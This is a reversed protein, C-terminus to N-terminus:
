IRGTPTRTTKSLDDRRSKAAKGWGVHGIWARLKEPAIGEVKYDHFAHAVGRQDLFARAKKMTDCNKIGYIDIVNM